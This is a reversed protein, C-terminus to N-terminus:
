AVRVEELPFSLDYISTQSDKFLHYFEVDRLNYKRHAVRAETFSDFRKAKSVEGTWAGDAALFERTKRNRILKTMTGKYQM